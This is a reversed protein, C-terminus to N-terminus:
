LTYKKFKTLSFYSSELTNNSPQLTDKKKLFNYYM